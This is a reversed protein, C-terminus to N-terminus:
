YDVTSVNKDVYIVYLKRHSVESHKKGTISINPM